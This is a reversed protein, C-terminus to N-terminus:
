SRTARNRCARRKPWRGNRAAASVSSASAWRSPSRACRRWIRTRNRCTQHITELPAGSLEFQGGPEISIAGMGNPEGLGIINDGDM